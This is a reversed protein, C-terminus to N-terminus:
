LSQLNCCQAIKKRRVQGIIYENLFDFIEAPKPIDKLSEIDLSMSEEKFLDVCLEVCENCIYVGPGQISKLKTRPNEPMFFLGWNKSDDIKNPM